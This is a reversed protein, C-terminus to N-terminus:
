RCAGEANQWTASSARGLQEPGAQGGLHRQRSLSQLQTLMALPFPVIDLEGRATLANSALAAGPIYCIPLIAAFAGSDAPQISGRGDFLPHYARPDPGGVGERERSRIIHFTMPHVTKEV